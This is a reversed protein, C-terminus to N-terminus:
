LVKGLSFHLIKQKGNYIQLKLLFAPPEVHVTHVAAVRQKQSGKGITTLYVQGTRFAVSSLM